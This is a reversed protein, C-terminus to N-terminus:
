SVAAKHARRQQSPNMGAWIGSPEPFAVVYRRCDELLHCARCLRAASQEAYARDEEDPYEATWLLGADCPVPRGEDTASRVVAMLQGHAKLRESDAFIMM